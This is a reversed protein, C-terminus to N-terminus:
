VGPRAASVCLADAGAAFVVVEVVDAEIGIVV